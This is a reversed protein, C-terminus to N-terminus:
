SKKFIPALNSSHMGNFKPSKEYMCNEKNRMLPGWPYLLCIFTMEKVTKHTYMYGNDMGVKM